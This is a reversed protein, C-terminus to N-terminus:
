NSLKVILNQLTLRTCPGQVNNTMPCFKLVSSDTWLRNFFNHIKFFAIEVEYGYLCSYFEWVFAESFGSLTLSIIAVILFTFRKRSRSSKLAFRNEMIWSEMSTILIPTHQSWSYRIASSCTQDFLIYHPCKTYMQGFGCVGQRQSFTENWSM